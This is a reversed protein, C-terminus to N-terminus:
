TIVIGLTKCCYSVWGHLKRMTPNVVDVDSQAYVNLYYTFYEALKKDNM